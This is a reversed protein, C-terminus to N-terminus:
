GYKEEELATIGQTLIQRAKQVAATEDGARIADLLQQHLGASERIDEARMSYHQRILNYLVTEFGRYIMSYITNGSAQVLRYHFQYLLETPDEPEAALKDVMLQMKDLTSKYINRCALRACESEILLRTDMLDSFLAKDMEVSSYRMVADLSQPTPRSRYDNVITGRRPEVTLFGMAELEVIGHNLSSRSVGMVEALEREPPLKDGPKLDGSLIKTLIAQVCTDKLSPATIKGFESM